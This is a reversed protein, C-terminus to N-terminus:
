YRDNEFIEFDKSTLEIFRKRNHALVPKMEKYMANLEAIDKKALFDIVKVIEATQYDAPDESYGEDWWRSFTQFGLDRLRHLFWQPGQVIFPTELLIPRWTKETPFFTNGNYCTECVIEVLFDCYRTLFTDHDNKLLQQAPNLNSQAVPEITNDVIPCQKLFHAPVSIDFQNFDTVLEELGINNRHYESSLSYHYTICSKDQFKNYLYSALDLRPGNSRGIFIGFHKKVNKTYYYVYDRANIVLNFPPIKEIFFINHKQVQNATKISIRKCDYNYINACYMIYKELVTASIDPGESNLNIKIDQDTVMAETIKSYVEDINWVKKDSTIVNVNM